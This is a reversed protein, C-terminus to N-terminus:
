AAEKGFAPFGFTATAIEGLSRAKLELKFAESFSKVDSLFEESLATDSESYLNGAIESVDGENLAITYDKVRTYFLRIMPKIRKAVGTDSIGEERLAVEFDDKMEDFLAQSLREGQEGHARLAELVLAIHLTLVDIRGDYSDPFRDQGYFVAERSQKLLATYIVRADRKANDPAGFLRFLFGM